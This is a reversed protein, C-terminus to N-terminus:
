TGAKTRAAGTRVAETHAALREDALEDLAEGLQTLSRLVSAPDATRDVVETLLQILADEATALASSGDETVQLSIARQDGEVEARALLGRQCLAEVAASIAPKGLTLRAAMRSARGDGAAVASLVRYHALSLSGTSREILRALRVLARVTEVEPRAPRTM